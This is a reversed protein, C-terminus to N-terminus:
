FYAPIIKSFNHYEAFHGYTMQAERRNPAAITPDLFNKVYLSDEINETGLNYKDLTCESSFEEFDCNFKFPEKQLVDSPKEYFSFVITPPTNSLLVTFELAEFINSKGAGNPGVFVSFPNPNELALDKLSKFNQIELKKIKV